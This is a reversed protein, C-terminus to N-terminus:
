KLALFQPLTLGPKSNGIAFGATGPAYSGPVPNTLPDASGGASNLKQGMTGTVNLAEAISGWVAQAIDNASPQSGISVSCALNGTGRPGATFSGTGYIYCPSDKLGTLAWTGSEAGNFAAAVTGWALVSMASTVSGRSVMSVGGYKVPLTMAAEYYGRPFSMYDSGFSMRYLASHWIPRQTPTGGIASCGLLASRGRYYVGRGILM